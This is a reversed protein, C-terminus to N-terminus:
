RVAVIQRTSLQSVNAPVATDVAYVQYVYSAGAAASNDRFTTERVPDRMLPQLADGVAPGRLVVYGALDSAEVASWSLVVAAGEQV